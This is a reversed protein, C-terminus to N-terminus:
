EGDEDRGGNPETEFLTKLTREEIEPDERLQLPPVKPTAEPPISHDVVAPKIHIWHIWANKEAVKIAIHDAFSSLTWDM